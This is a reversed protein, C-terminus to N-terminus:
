LTEVWANKCLLWLLKSYVKGIEMYGNVCWPYTFDAVESSHPMIIMWNKLFHFTLSSGTYKWSFVIIIIYYLM